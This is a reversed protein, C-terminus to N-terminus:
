PLRVALPKKQKPALDSKALQEKKLQDTLKANLSGGSMRELEKRILISFPGKGSELSRRAYKIAGAVNYDAQNLKVLRYLVVDQVYPNLNGSEDLETLVGIADKYKGEDQYIDAFSLLVQPFMPTGAAKTYLQDLIKKAAVFRTTDTAPELMGENILRQARGYYLNLEDLNRETNHRIGIWALAILLIVGAGVLIPTLNSAAGELANELFSQVQDPRKLDQKRSM